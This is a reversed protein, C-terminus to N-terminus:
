FLVLSVSCLLLCYSIKRDGEREREREWTSRHHVSVTIYIVRQIYPFCVAYVSIFECFLVLVSRCM